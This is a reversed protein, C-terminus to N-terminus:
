WYNNRIAYDLLLDDQPYPVPQSQGVGSGRCRAKRVPRLPLRAVGSVEAREANAAEMNRATAFRPGECRCRETAVEQPSLTDDRM